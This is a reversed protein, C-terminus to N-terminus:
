KAEDPLPAMAKGAQVSAVMLMALVPVLLFSALNQLEWGRPLIPLWFMIVINVCAFGALRGSIRSLVMFAPIVFILRYSWNNFVLFTVIFVAASGTLLLLDRDPLHQLKQKCGTLNQPRLAYFIATIVALLYLVIVVSAGTPNGYFVPAKFLTGLGYSVNFGSTTGSMISPLDLIALVILPAAIVLGLLSLKRKRKFRPHALALLAFLPFIKAAGALGFGVAAWFAGGRFLLIPAFSLFMAIADINGREIALLTIPSFAFIAFSAPNFKLALIMITFLLLLANVQWFKIFFAETDDGLFRYIKVWISPYNYAPVSVDPYIARLTPADEYCQAFGAASESAKECFASLQINRADGGPFAKAPVSFLQYKEQWNEIDSFVFMKAFAIALVFVFLHALGFESKM